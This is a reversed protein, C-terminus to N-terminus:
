KDAIILPQDKINLYKKAREIMKPKDKEPIFCVWSNIDYNNKLVELLMVWSLRYDVEQYQKM